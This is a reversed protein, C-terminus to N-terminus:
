LAAATKGDVDCVVRLAGLVAINRVLNKGWHGCGVVAVGAVPTKRPECAPGTLSQTM